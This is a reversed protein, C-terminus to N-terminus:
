KKSGENSPTLSKLENPVFDDPRSYAIWEALNQKTRMLEDNTYFALTELGNTLQERDRLRNLEIQELAAAIWRREQTHAANIAEILDALHQNTVTSSAALTQIAFENLDRRFQQSLEDKLQVYSGALALQWDRSLEERLSQRIVPELSTKLSTELAHFQDADLERPVTLLAVAYGLAILLMAAAALKTIRSQFAAAWISVQQASVQGARSKLLQFEEPYKQKWKEADFQPEGENIVRSILEDLWKEKKKNM